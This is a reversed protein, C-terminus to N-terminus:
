AAKRIVGALVNQLDCLGFPKPLSGSFGFRQFNEMVEDDAYGSTVIMPVHESVKRIMRATEVGGTGKPITLDLILAEIQAIGVDALIEAVQEGSEALLPNYGLQLLMGAMAGRMLDDDDMVVVLRSDHSVQCEGAREGLREVQMAYPIRITFCSGKGPSSTVTIQGGHGAVIAHTMALGFGTGQKKTSFYPEFIREQIDKSIGCGTDVVDIRLEKEADLASAKKECRDRSSVLVRVIGSRGMAEKANVLLNQLVQGMQVRDIPVHPDCGDRSEVDLQINSGNLAFEGAERIVEVIDCVERLPDGGKAFTLLQGTLGKAREVGKVALALTEICPQSDTQGTAVEIYALISSLLNNFDHAIGGALGGLSVLKESTLREQIARERMVKDEQRQIIVGAISACNELLIQYFGDPERHEFSSIAFSGISRNQADRIPFAFCSKINYKKALERVHYWRADTLTDRVYMPENHFVANGCSGDGVRLGAFDDWVAQNLSPASLINLGNKDVDLKMISAVANTTFSEAFSCLEDLLNGHDDCVVAKGLIQRQLVLIKNLQENSININEVLSDNFMQRDTM